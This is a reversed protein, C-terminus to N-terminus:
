WILVVCVKPVPRPKTPDLRYSAILTQLPIRRRRFIGHLHGCLAARPASSILLRPVLPCNPSPSCCSSLRRHTFAALSQIMPNPSAFHTPPTTTEIGLGHTPHTGLGRLLANVGGMGELTELNKPDCSERASTTQIWISSCGFRSRAQSGARCPTRTSSGQAQRRANDGKQGNHRTTGSGTDTEGSSSPSPRRVRHVSRKFFSTVSSPRSGADLNADVHTHTSFPLTSTVHPHASPLPSLM